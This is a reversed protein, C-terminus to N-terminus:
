LKSNSGKKSTKQCLVVTFYDKLKFRNAMVSASVIM